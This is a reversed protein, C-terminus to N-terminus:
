YSAELLLKTRRFKFQALGEAAELVLGDRYTWVQIGVRCENVPARVFQATYSRKGSDLDDEVRRLDHEDEM